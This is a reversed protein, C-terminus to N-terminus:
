ECFQIELADSLNNLAPQGGADRYWFQFNWTTGPDIQAPPSPPNTFDLAFSASGLLDTQVVPLRHFPNGICLTGNGVPLSGQNAGYLFLGFENVPCNFVLLEFSVQQVRFRGKSENTFAVM